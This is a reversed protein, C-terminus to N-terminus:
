GERLGPLIRLWAGLATAGIALAVSVLVNVQQEAARKAAEEQAPGPPMESLLDILDPLVQLFSFLFFFVVIYLLGITGRPKFSPPRRRAPLDSSGPKRDSM